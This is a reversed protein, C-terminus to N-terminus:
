QRIEGLFAELRKVGEGKVQLLMMTRKVADLIETLRKMNYHRAEPLLPLIQRYVVLAERIAHDYDGPMSCDMILSGKLELLVCKDDVNFSEELRSDLYDMINKKWFEIVPSEINIQGASQANIVLSLLAIDEEMEIDRTPQLANDFYYNIGDEMGALTGGPLFSDPDTATILFLYEYIAKRLFYIGIDELHIYLHLLDQWQEHEGSARLSRFRCYRAATIVEYFEEPNFHTIAPASKWVELANRYWKREEGDAQLVVSDLLEGTLRQQGVAAKGIGAAIEYYLAARLLAPQSKVGELPLHRILDDIDEVLLAMGEDLAISDAQWSVAKVFAEWSDPELPDSGDQGIIEQVYTVIRGLLDGNLQDQQTVWEELLAGDNGDYAPEVPIEADEAATVANAEFVFTIGGPKYEGKRWLVFFRRIASSVEDGNFAPSSAYYKVAAFGHQQGPVRLFVGDENDYFFVDDTAELRSLLWDRLAKLQQYRFGTTAPGKTFILLKPLGM